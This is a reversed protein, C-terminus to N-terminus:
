YDVVFSDGMESVQGILQRVPCCNERAHSTIKAYLQNDMCYQEITFGSVEMEEESRAGFSSACTTSAIRM